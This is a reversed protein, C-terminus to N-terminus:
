PKYVELGCAKFGAIALAAVNQRREVWAPVARDSWDPYQVAWAVIRGDLNDIMYKDYCACRESIEVLSLTQNQAPAGARCVAGFNSNQALVIRDVRTADQTPMQDACAGLALVVGTLIFYKKM